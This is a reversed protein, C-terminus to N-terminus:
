LKNITNKIFKAYMDQPSMFEIIRVRYKLKFGLWGFHKFLFMNLKTPPKIIECKYTFTGDPNERPLIHKDHFWKESLILKFTRTKKM